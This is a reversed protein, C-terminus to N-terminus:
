GMHFDFGKGLDSTERERDRSLRHSPSKSGNQSRSRKKSSSDGCDDRRDKQELSTREAKRSSHRYSGSDLKNDKGNLPDTLGYEAELRKRHASVKREIEEANRTGREELSERYEIIVAELQRLKQRRAEDMGSGGFATAYSDVNLLCGTLHDIQSIKQASPCELATSNPKVGAM